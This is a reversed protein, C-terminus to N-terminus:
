IKGFDIEEYSCKITEYLRPNQHSGKWVHLPGFGYYPWLKKIVRWREGELGKAETFEKKGTQKNIFSFDVKYGIKARTLYLQEQTRLESIEGADEKSKLVLFVSRELQSGFSRSEYTVRKANYKNFKM